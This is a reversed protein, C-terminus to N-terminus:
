RTLAAPRETPDGDEAHPMSLLMGAITGLTLISAVFVWELALVFGEEGRFFKRLLKRM